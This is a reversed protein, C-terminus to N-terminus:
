CKRPGCRCDFDLSTRARFLLGIQEAEPHEKIFRQHRELAGPYYATRPPIHSLVRRMEELLQNRQPWNADQIIVRTANCNFGANNTLM